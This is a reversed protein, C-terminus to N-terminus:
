KDFLSIIGAIVLTCAFAFVPVILWLTAWAQANSFQSWDM